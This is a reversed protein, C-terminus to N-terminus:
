FSALTAHMKEGVFILSEVPGKLTIEKSPKQMPIELHNM